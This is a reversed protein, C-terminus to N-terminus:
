AKREENSESSLSALADARGSVLQVAAGMHGFSSTVESMGGVMVSLEQMNGAHTERLVAVSAASSKGEEALRYMTDNIEQLMRSMEYQMEVLNGYDSASTQISNVTQQIMEDSGRLSKVVNDKTTEVDRLLEQIHSSSTQTQEALKRVEGAVVAFGRGQEGARAAEISANLALLNTQEAIGRIVNLIDQIEETKAALENVAQTSKDSATQIDEISRITNLLEEKNRDAMRVVQLTFQGANKSKESAEHMGDVMTGIDQEVGQISSSFLQSEQAIAGASGHIKAVTKDATQISQNLDDVNGNLEDSASQITQLVTGMDDTLKQSQTLMQSSRKTSNLFIVGIFLFQVGYYIATLVSRNMSSEILMPSGIYYHTFQSIVLLPVTFYFTRKILGYDAYLSALGIPFLWVFPVNVWSDTHLLFAFILMSAVSLPKFREKSSGFKYYLVPILFLLFLLQYVVGMFNFKPMGFIAIQIVNNLMMVASAAVFLKYLVRSVIEGNEKLFMDNSM